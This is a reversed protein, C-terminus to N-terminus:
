CKHCDEEIKYTLLQWLMAQHTTHLNAGLVWVQSGWATSASGTFKVEVGGPQGQGLM